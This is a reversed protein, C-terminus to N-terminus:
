WTVQRPWICPQRSALSGGGVIATETHAEGELRTSVPGAPAVSHWFSNQFSLSPHPATALSEWVTPAYGKHAIEPM